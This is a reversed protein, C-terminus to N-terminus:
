LINNLSTVSLTASVSGPEPLLEANAVQPLPQWYFDDDTLASSFFLAASLLLKSLM